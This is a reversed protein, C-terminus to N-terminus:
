PNMHTFGGLKTIWASREPSSSLPDLANLTRAIAVDRPVSDIGVLAKRLAPAYQQWDSDGRWIATATATKFPLLEPRFNKPQHEAERKLWQYQAWVHRWGWLYLIDKCGVALVPVGRTTEALDNLASVQLPRIDDPNELNLSARGNMSKIEFMWFYGYNDAALRDMRVAGGHLPSDVPKYSYPFYPYIILKGVRSEWPGKAM